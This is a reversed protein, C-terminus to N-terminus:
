FHFSFSIIKLPYIFYSATFVLRDSLHFHSSATFYATMFLYGGRSIEPLAGEKSHQYYVPCNETYLAKQFPSAM